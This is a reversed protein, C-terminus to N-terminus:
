DGIEFHATKETPDFFLKAGTKLMFDIGLLSPQFSSEQDRIPFEVPMEIEFDEGFRLNSKEVIRTLIQGGGINVPKNRGVLKNLQINSLRMRKTDLPGILTIPSGTDVIANIPIFSPLGGVKLLFHAMIRLGGAFSYVNLPIIKM